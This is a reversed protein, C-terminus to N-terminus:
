HALQRRFISRTEYDPFREYVYQVLEAFTMGVVLRKIEFLKRAIPIDRAEMDDVLRQAALLGNPSAKYITWTQGEVPGPRILGEDVLEDLDAYIQKSMPGYNYPVFQYREDPGLTTEPDQALLFMSKQVRVPHLGDPSGEYALLLLLWEPRTVAADRDLSTRRRTCPGLPDRPTITAPGASPARPARRGTARFGCASSEDSARSV